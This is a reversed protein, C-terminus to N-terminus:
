RYAHEALALGSGKRHGDPATGHEPFLVGDLGGLSKRRNIANM